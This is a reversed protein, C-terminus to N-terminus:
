RCYLNRTVRGFSFCALVSSPILACLIFLLFVRRAVNSHFSAYELQLTPPPNM